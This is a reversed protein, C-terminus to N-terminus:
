EDKRFSPYLLKADKQEQSFWGRYAEEPSKNTMVQDWAISYSQREPEYKRPTIKYWKGQYRVAKTSLVMSQGSDMNISAKIVPEM